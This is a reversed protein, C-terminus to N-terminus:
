FMLTGGLANCHRSILLFEIVYHLFKQKCQVNRNLHFLRTTDLEM